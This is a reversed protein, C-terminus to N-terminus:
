GVVLVLMAAVVVVVIGEVFREVVVDVGTDVVVFTGTDAVKARYLGQDRQPLAPPLPPSRQLRVRNSRNADDDDYDM